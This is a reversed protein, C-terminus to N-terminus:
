VKFHDWGLAQVSQSTGDSFLVRLGQSQPTMEGVKTIPLHDISFVASKLTEVHEPACTMILEYDDSEGLFLDYPDKELREAARLLDLSLPLAEHYLTAGLQSEECLHGLDGLFGDSTDIMATVLGTRAAARGERARHEPLIYAKVLGSDSLEDEPLGKLILSLGAGAQGPYGTVLVADGVRATNRRVTLDREVEGMLTIDIFNHLESKTINGGVICANFPNLEQMFGRYIEKVAEVLMTSRLGLSILAYLPIGGMAGIDSINLVM